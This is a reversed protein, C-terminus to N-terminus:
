NHQNAAVVFYLAGIMHIIVLTTYLGDDGWTAFLWYIESLGPLFLTLIGGIVGRVSFALVVTWIHVIMATVAFIKSM